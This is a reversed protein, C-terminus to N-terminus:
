AAREKVPTAKTGRVRVEVLGSLASSKRKASNYAKFALQQGILHIDVDVDFDVVVDKKTKRDWVVVNRLTRSEKTM